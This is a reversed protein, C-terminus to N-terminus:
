PGLRVSLSWSELCFAHMKGYAFKGAGASVLSKGPTIYGEPWLEQEEKGEGRGAQPDRELKVSCSHQAGRQKITFKLAEPYM